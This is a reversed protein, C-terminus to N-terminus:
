WTPTQSTWLQPLPPHCPCLRPDLWPCSSPCLQRKCWLCHLAPWCHPMHLQLLLHSCGLEATASNVAGNCPNRAPQEGDIFMQVQDDTIKVDRSRLAKGVEAATLWGDRDTDFEQARRAACRLDAEPCGSSSFGPDPPELGKALLCLNSGVQFIHALPDVYAQSPIRARALIASAFEQMGRIRVSEPQAATFADLYATHAVERDEEPTPIASAKPKSQPNQAACRLVRRQQRHADHPSPTHSAHPVCVRFTVAGVSM